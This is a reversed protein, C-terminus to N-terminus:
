FTRSGRLRLGSQYTADDLAILLHLLQMDMERLKEFPQGNVKILTRIIEIWQIDTVKQGINEQFLDRIINIDEIDAEWSNPRNAIQEKSAAKFVDAEVMSKVAAVDKEFSM